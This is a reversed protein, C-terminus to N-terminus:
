LAPRRAPESERAGPPAAPLTAGPQNGPASSPRTTRRPHRASPTM